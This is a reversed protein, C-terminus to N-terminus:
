LRRMWGRCTGCQQCTAAPRIAGGLEASRRRVGGRGARVRFGCDWGGVRGRRLFVRSLNELAQGVSTGLRVSLMDFSMNGGRRERCRCGGGPSPTLPRPAHIDLRRGENRDRGPLGFTRQRRQPQRRAKPRRRRGCSPRVGALSNGSM